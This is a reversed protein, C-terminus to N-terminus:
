KPLGPCQEQYPVNSGVYTDWESQSLNRTLKACLNRRWSEPDVDWFFLDGIGDGSVLTRGDPSFAVALVEDDHGRLPELPLRTEVDWLILTHDGAGSALMRGDRSFALSMVGKSSTQRHGRLPDGVVRRAGADWLVVTGDNSASALIRGSPDYAVANVDRDHRRSTAGISKLGPAAWFRVILDDGASAVSKGDPSFALARVPGQHGSTSESPRPQLTAPDWLRLKKDNGGSVLTKGDPSFAVALTGGQHAVPSERLVPMLTAGDSLKLAGNKRGSAVLKGNPSFAVSLVEDSSGTKDIALQKRSAVDWLKLTGDASGTVVTKGDPRFALSWIARPHADVRHGIATPADVNWLILSNDYSASVFSRGDRSFAVDRVENKHARLVGGREIPKEQEPDWVVISGDKSASVVNRGDGSFALNYVWDRHERAKATVHFTGDKALRWFAVTGDAHGSVMRDGGPSFALAFAGRSTVVELSDVKQRDSPNWLVLAGSGHATVLRKGDRSFAVGNVGSGTRLPEGDPKKTVPDWFVVTGDDSASVLTKGDSSFVVRNVWKDHNKELGSLPKGSAADWFVVGGSDDGSVIMAGDPSFTVAWARASHGGELKRLQRGTEANWQMLTGNDGASVMIKGDPSFAVGNPATPSVLIKRVQALRSMPTLLGRRAEFSPQLRYSAIALLAATDLPVNVSPDAFLISQAAVRGGLALHAQEAANRAAATAKDEADEATKRLTTEEDAKSVALNKLEVAEKEATIARQLASNAAREATHANWWMYIAFVAFASCVVAAAAVLRTRARQRRAEWQVREREHQRRAEETREREREEARRRDRHERVARTLLDHTLEIREAGYREEVRLLRRQILLNLQDQTLRAPVADEKAYSNRFGKETILETEIFRRAADPLSEVCSAYYDSIISQGAGDLLAADFNPKRQRKRQDNLGRCFLSLLAPEIESSTGDAATAEAGTVQAAAVFEVIKQATAKDMLHPATDYVASLAQEPSMPLLRVRVRGLSPIERRWAELHPLFDERLSIILKHPMARLDLREVEAANAGLLATVPAPIRNEILDGLDIRFRDVAEPLREGLTFQEEFQDVVLIPTLQYNEASWLELGSRHLYEWLTEGPTFAPADVRESRCTARLADRLQEALPPADPRIDLRVYVPLFQKARLRPFLGAKLLSTKGLGSKGFLVTLPAGIVRRVLEQAEADRGHFYDRANEEFPQLGPWPNDPDLQSEAPAFNREVAAATATDNV